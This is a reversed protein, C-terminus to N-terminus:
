LKVYKNNLDKYIINKYKAKSKVMLSVASRTVDYMDAIEQKSYGLYVLYLIDIRRKPLNFENLYDKINTEDVVFALNNIALMVDITTIDNEETECSDIRVDYKENEERNDKKKRITYLNRKMSKVLYTVFKVEFKEYDYRMLCNLITFDYEFEIDDLELESYFNKWVFIATEKYNKYIKNFLEENKTEQYEKIEKEMNIYNKM